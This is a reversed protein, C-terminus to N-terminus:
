AAFPQTLRLRLLAKKALDLVADGAVPLRRDALRVEGSFSMFLADRSGHQGRRLDRGAISLGAEGGGGVDLSGSVPRTAKEPAKLALDFVAPLTGRLATLLPGAIEPPDELQPTWPENM